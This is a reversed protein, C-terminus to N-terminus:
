RLPDQAEDDQVRMCSERVGQGWAALRQDLGAHRLYAPDLEPKFYGPHIVLMERDLINACYVALAPNLGPEIVGPAHHLLAADVVSDPLGWLQLMYAGMEAHTAGLVEREAMQLSKSGDRLRKIIEAYAEAMNYAIVLKGVDHLLGATAYEKCAKDPLGEMEAIRGAACATRLSHDLLLRLSFGPVAVTCSDFLTLTLILSRLLDVGLLNLAETSNLVKGPFGFFPSNVLKLLKATMAVDRDILSGLKAISPEGRALEESFQEYFAPLSPLRSISGVLARLSTRSLLDRSKLANTLTSILLTKPCPKSLYQQSPLFSQGLFEKESYGSLVMRITGPHRQQVKHLLEAGDMGPMRMDTVIVDMPVSAMIELAAPGSAAFHMSWERRKESLMRRLGDLIKADDDVFLISKTM